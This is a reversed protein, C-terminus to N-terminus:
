MVISVAEKTIESLHKTLWPGWDEGLSPPAEVGLADKLYKEDFCLKVIERRFELWEDDARLELLERRAQLHASLDKKSDIIAPMTTDGLSQYHTLRPCLRPLRTNCGCSRGIAAEAKALAVTGELESIRAKLQEIEAEPGGRAGFPHHVIARVKGDEGVIGIPGATKSRRLVGAADRLFEDRTVTVM